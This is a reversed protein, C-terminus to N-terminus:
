ASCACAQERKANARQERILKIIVQQNSYEDASVHGCAMAYGLMATAVGLNLEAFADSECTRANNLHLDIINRGAVPMKSMTTM